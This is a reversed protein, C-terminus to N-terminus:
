TIMQLTEENAESYFGVGQHWGDKPNVSRRIEQLLLLESMALLVQMKLGFM